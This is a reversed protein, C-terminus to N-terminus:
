GDPENILDILLYGKNAPTALIDKLLQSWNAIWGSQNNFSYQPAAAAEQWYNSHFDLNVYFGQSIYYSVM